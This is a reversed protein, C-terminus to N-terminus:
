DVKFDGTHLVVGAPTHIALMVADPISHSSRIFEVKMKGFNVTEGQQVEIMKTSKLLKHEELKNKILAVTKM